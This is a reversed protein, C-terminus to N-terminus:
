DFQTAGDENVPNRDNESCQFELLTGHRDRRYTVTLEYPEALAQPDDMRVHYVLIDPSEESLHIQETVHFEPSHLAGGAFELDELIAITDVVLTEGEWRGISHGMFTPDPDEPHGRGDIWIARTQMWAEQNITVRRPTFLFEYPYQALQM